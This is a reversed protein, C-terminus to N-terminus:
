RAMTRVEFPPLTILFAVLGLAIGGWGLVRERTLAGRGEGGPGAGTSRLSDMLSETTMRKTSV